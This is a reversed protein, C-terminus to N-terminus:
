EQISELYYVVSLIRGQVIHKADMRNVGRDTLADEMFYDGWIPMEGTGHPRPMNRGDIMQYVESFPFAGGNNEKLKTLDRPKAEFLETIHGDAKGEQGHCLGCRAQFESKGLVLANDASGAIESTGGLSLVTVAAAVVTRIM